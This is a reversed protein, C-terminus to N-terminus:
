KDLLLLLQLSAIKWAEGQKVRVQVFPVKIPNSDQSNPSLEGAIALM